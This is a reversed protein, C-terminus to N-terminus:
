GKVEEKKPQQTIISNKMGLGKDKYFEALLLLYSIILPGIILGLIGFAYLGGIMGILIIGTNMKILKSVIIPRVINDVWSVVVAGYIVLGIASNVHGSAFLYIAVPVWVIWAGIIPIISTLITLITLLLANPAGFIFYGIGAVLGQIAGTIVQGFLISNTVQQFRIILKDKYEKPFPSVSVFYAMLAKHDRLIFFFTFLVIAGKLIFNSLNLALNKISSLLFAALNSTISTTMALVDALTKPSDFLAPVLKRLIPSLDVSQLFVYVNLLQKTMFPIILILPIIIVILFIGVIIFAAGNPSKTIEKLKVYPTHFIYALILGFFISLVIDRLMIFALFLLIVIFLILGLKKFEKEEM